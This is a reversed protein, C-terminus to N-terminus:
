DFTLPATAADLLLDVAREGGPRGFVFKFGSIHYLMGDRPGLPRTYVAEALVRMALGGETVFRFEHRSGILCALPCEVSFGGLGLDRLIIKLNGKAIAGNILAEVEVRPSTRHEEHRASTLPALTVARHLPLAHAVRIIPPGPDPAPLGTCIRAAARDPSRCSLRGSSM